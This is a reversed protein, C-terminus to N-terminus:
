LWEELPETAGSPWSTVLVQGQDNVIDDWSHIKRVETMVLRELCDATIVGSRLPARYGYETELVPKQPGMLSEFMLGALYRERKHRDKLVEYADKIRMFVDHANDDKCVDPHWLKAMRRYGASVQEDTATTAIGLLAFYSDNEGPVALSGGFYDRLVQEPFLVSWSGDMLGYASSRGDARTKACGVYRVNLVKTAVNETIDSMDPLKVREGFYVDIWAVIKEGHAPEVVWVKNAPDYKRESAPLSKIAAVFAKNYPTKVVLGGNRLYLDAAM